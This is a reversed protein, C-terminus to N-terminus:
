PVPLIELSFIVSSTFRVEVQARLADHLHEVQQARDVLLGGGVAVEAAVLRFEAPFRDVLSGCQPGVGPPTQMMALSSKRRKERERPLSKDVGM